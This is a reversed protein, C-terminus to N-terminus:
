IDEISVFGRFDATHAPLCAFSESPRCICALFHGSARLQPKLGKQSNPPVAGDVAKLMCFQCAGARCSSPVNLGARELGELVTEGPRIGIAKGDYSIEIDDM